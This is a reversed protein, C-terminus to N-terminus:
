NNKKKNQKKFPTKLTELGQRQQDDQHFKKDKQLFRRNKKKKFFFFFFFFFFFTTSSIALCLDCLGFTSRGRDGGGEGAREKASAVRV